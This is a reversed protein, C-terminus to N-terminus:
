MTNIAINSNRSSKSMISQDFHNYMYIMFKPLNSLHLWGSGFFDSGTYISKTSNHKGNNNKNSNKQCVWKIRDQKGIILKMPKHCYKCTQKTKIVGYMMFIAICANVGNYHNLWEM